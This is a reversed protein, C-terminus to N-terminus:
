PLRKLGFSVRGIPCHGFHSPNDYKPIRQFPNVTISKCSFREIQKSLVPGSLATKRFGEQNERGTCDPLIIKLFTYIKKRKIKPFTYKQM